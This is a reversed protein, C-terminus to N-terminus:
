LRYFERATTHFLLREDTQKLPGLAARMAGLTGPYNSQMLILPYDSGWMLRASGFQELAYQVFPKILDVQWGRGPQAVVEALDEGRPSLSLKCYVPTDAALMKMTDFWRSREAASRMDPKGLHEIVAHLQPVAAYVQRIQPLHYSSVLFEFGLGRAAVQKLGEIVKPETLVNPNAHGEFRARVAKVKPNKSWADLEPALADGTLDVFPVIAAIRESSAATEAMFGRFEASTGAEVFICATVGTAQAAQIFEAPGFSQYIPQWEPTPFTTTALRLNWFHVHTDIIGSPAADNSNM